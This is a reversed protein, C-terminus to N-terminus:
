MWRVQTKGPKKMLLRVAIVIVRAEAGGDRYRSVGCVSVMGRPNVPKGRSGSVLSKTPM